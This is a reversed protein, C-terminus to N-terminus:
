VDHSDTDKITAIIAIAIDDGFEEATMLRNIAEKHSLQKQERLVRYMLVILRRLHLDDSMEFPRAPEEQREATQLWIQQVPVTEEIVELMAKLLGRQEVTAQRLAAEVLPHSRDIRYSTCGRKHVEKWPRQIEERKERPGYRGRHVFVARADKRVSEALRRLQGRVSPPPHATSKKVDLQWLHDMSNSIDLRLRALKYHEEQTWPRGSGLGLWSGALILRENRYLYFGQQANWGAPGSAKRHEEDGLKDKHPLVFGKVRVPEEFGSVKIAQEPTTSTAPHQEAFPDWPKIRQGNIWIALRQRPPALFRHFVMGLHQEVYEVQRLFHGKMDAEDPQDEGVLRDLVEWLVVTGTDVDDCLTLRDGSSEYATRLLQWGSINPRALHDLDWRRISRSGGRSVSAVTLRRCQSFSATKLGLGFRGLDTPEREELPNRSGLRMANLLVTESMGQGDDRIAIWTDDGNWEFQLWVNQAQAAISNDILDAIATPLTYGHARMSEIMSSPDPAVEDFMAAPEEKLTAM